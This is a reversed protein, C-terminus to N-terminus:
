GIYTTPFASPSATKPHATCCLLLPQLEYHSDSYVFSALVSPALQRDAAVQSCCIHAFCAADALSVQKYLCCRLM